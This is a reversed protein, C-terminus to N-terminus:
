AGTIGSLIFCTRPNEVYLPVSFTKLYDSYQMPIQIPEWPWEDDKINLIRRRAKDAAMRQNADLKAVMKWSGDPEQVPIYTFKM